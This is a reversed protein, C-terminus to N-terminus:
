TKKPGIVLQFIHGGIQFSAGAALGATKIPKNEVLTGNTSDLDRLTVEEGIVEVACHIRSVLPDDVKIDANVRGLTIRPKSLPYVASRDPGQVVKLSLERNKPLSLVRGDPTVEKTVSPAKKRTTELKLTSVRPNTVQLKEGCSGCTVQIKNQNGFADPPISQNKGCHSCRVEM